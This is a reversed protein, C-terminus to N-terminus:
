VCNALIITKFACANRMSKQQIKRPDRLAFRFFSPFVGWYQVRFSKIVGKFVFLCVFCLCFIPSFFVLMSKALITESQVM